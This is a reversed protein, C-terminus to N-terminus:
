GTLFEGVLDKQEYIGSIQSSLSAFFDVAAKRRKLAMSRATQTYFKSYLNKLKFNYEKYFSEPEHSNKGDRIGNADTTYIPCATQGKYILTRAIGLGGAVDLKDADFLIKAEISEPINDGRYRHTSICRRVQEARDEDWNNELLFAKAKKSGAIAHCIKPNAFQENRGIDHLLCAAILIDYDVNEKTKKAIYLASYLVRYIHEPDHSSDTMCELM